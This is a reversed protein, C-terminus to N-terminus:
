CSCISKSAKPVVKRNEGCTNRVAALFTQSFCREKQGQLSSQMTLLNITGFLFFCLFTGDSIYSKAVLCIPNKMSIRLTYKMQVYLWPKIVVRSHCPKVCLHCGRWDTTTRGNVPPPGTDGSM